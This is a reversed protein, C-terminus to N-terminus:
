RRCIPKYLENIKRELVKRDAGTYGLSDPMYRLYVVPLRECNKYWCTSRDHNSLSIGRGGSDGVDLLYYNGYFSKRLIAYVAARNSKINAESSNISYPGEFESDCIKM